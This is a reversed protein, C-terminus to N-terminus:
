YNRGSKLWKIIEYNLLEKTKLNSPACWYQSYRQEDKALSKQESRKTKLKGFNDFIFGTRLELIDQYMNDRPFHPALLIGKCYKPLGGIRLIGGPRLALVSKVYFATAHQIETSYLPLSYLAWCEDFEDVFNTDIFDQGISVHATNNGLVYKDVNTVHCNIHLLDFTRKIPSKGGGVLLLKKNNFFRSLNDRGLDFCALYTSLPRDTRCFKGNQFLDKVATSV